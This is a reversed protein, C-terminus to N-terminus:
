TGWPRKRTPPQNCREVHTQVTHRSNGNSTPSTVISFGVALVGVDPITPDCSYPGRPPAPDIARSGKSCLSPSRPEYERGIWNPAWLMRMKARGLQIAFCCQIDRSAGGDIWNRTGGLLPVPVVSVHVRCHIARTEVLIEALCLVGVRSAGAECCALCYSPNTTTSSVHKDLTRITFWESRSGTCM